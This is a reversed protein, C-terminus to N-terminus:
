LFLVSFQAELACFVSFLGVILLELFFESQGHYIIQRFLICITSVGKTQCGEILAMLRIQPNHTRRFDLRFHSFAETYGVRLSQFLEDSYTLGGFVYKLLAPSQALGQCPPAYFFCGALNNLFARSIGAKRMDHQPVSNLDFQQANQDLDVVLAEIATCGLSHGVLVIPRQWTHDLSWTGSGHLFIIEM